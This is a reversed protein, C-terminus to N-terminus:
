TATAGGGWGALGGETSGSFGVAMVVIRLDMRLHFSALGLLEFGFVLPIEEEEEEEDAEDEEEELTPPATGLCLKSRNSRGPTAPDFPPYARPPPPPLLGLTILKPDVEEKDEDV